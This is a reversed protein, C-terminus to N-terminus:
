GISYLKRIQKEGGRSLVKSLAVNRLRRLVPNKL